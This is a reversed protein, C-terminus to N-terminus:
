SVLTTPEPPVDIQTTDVQFGPDVVAKSQQFYVGGPLRVDGGSELLIRLAPVTLANEAIRSLARQVRTYYGLDLIQEKSLERSAVMLNSVIAEGQPLSVRVTGLDVHVLTSM